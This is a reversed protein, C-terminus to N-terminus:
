ANDSELEPITGWVQAIDERTVEWGSSDIDDPDTNDTIRQAVEDAGGNQAGMAAAASKEEREERPVHLRDMVTDADVKVTATPSKLLALLIDHLQEANDPDLGVTRVRVRPSDAPFNAREVAPFVYDNVHRDIDAADQLLLETALKLLVDATTPGGLATQKVNLFSQPPVLMGLAMAQNCQDELEHFRSIDGTTELWEVTWKRISSLTVSGTTEDITEYVTSPIAATSGSRTANGVAEAIDRNSDSEGKTKGPPYSAKVTPNIMKQIWVIYSDMGFQKVWWAKYANELRGAGRYDGFALHQGLSLWLSYFVDVKGDLTNMGEFHRRKKDFVPSSGVPFVQDFGVITYPLAAATWVPGADIAEPQPVSFEYRKVLGLSGLACALSAQLIFEREWGRFMAEFFRRKSEDQCEVVRTAKVLTSGIFGQTMAVIPDRLMELKRAVPLNRALTLQGYRRETDGLWYGYMGWRQWPKMPATTRPTTAAVQRQPTRAIQYDPKETM